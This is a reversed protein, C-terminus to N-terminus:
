CPPVGIKENNTLTFRTPKSPTKRGHIVAPRSVLMWFWLAGSTIREEFLKAFDSACLAASMSRKLELRIFRVDPFNHEHTFSCELLDPVRVTNALNAVSCIKDQDIANQKMFACAAHCQFAKM